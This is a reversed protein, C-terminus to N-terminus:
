RFGGTCVPDFPRAGAAGSRKKSRAEEDRRKAERLVSVLAGCVRQGLEYQMLNAQAAGNSLVMKYAVSSLVLATVAGSASVTAAGVSVNTLERTWFLSETDAM